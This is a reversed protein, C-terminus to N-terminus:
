LDWPPNLDEMNEHHTVWKTEDLNQPDTSPPEAISADDIGELWRRADQESSFGKFRAGPYRHVQQNCDEWTRYIGPERGARVAYYRQAM